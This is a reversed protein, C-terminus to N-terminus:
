GPLVKMGFDGSPSFFVLGANELEQIIERGRKKSVGQTNVIEALIVERALKERKTM